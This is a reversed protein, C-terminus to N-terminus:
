DDDGAERKETAREDDDERGVPELEHRRRQYEVTVCRGAEIDTVYRRAVRLAMLDLALM